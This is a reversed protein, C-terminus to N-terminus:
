GWRRVEINFTAVNSSDRRMRKLLPPLGPWWLGQKVRVTLSDHAFVERRMHKLFNWLGRSVAPTKSPITVATTECALRRACFGAAAAAGVFTSKARSM